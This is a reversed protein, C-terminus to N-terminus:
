QLFWFVCTDGEVWGVASDPMWDTLEMQDVVQPKDKLREYVSKSALIAQPKMGEVMQLFKVATLTPIGAMTLHNKILQRALCMTDLQFGCKLEIKNM